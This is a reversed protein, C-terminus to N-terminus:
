HESCLLLELVVKYCVLSLFKWSQSRGAEQGQGVTAFPFLILFLCFEFRWLFSFSCSFSQSFSFLLFTSYLFSVIFSVVFLAGWIVNQLQLIILSFQFQNISYFRQYKFITRPWRRLSSGELEGILHWISGDGGSEFCVDICLLGNEFGDGFVDVAIGPFSITFLEPQATALCIESILSKLKSNCDDCLSKCCPPCAFSWGSIIFAPFGYGTGM